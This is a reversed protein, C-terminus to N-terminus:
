QRARAPTYEAVPNAASRLTCLAFEQSKLTRKSLGAIMLLKNSNNTYCDWLINLIDDRACSSEHSPCKFFYISGYKWEPILNQGEM